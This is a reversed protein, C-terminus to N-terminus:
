EMPAGTYIFYRLSSYDFDRVNPQALIRYIVTPPMFLKTIKYRPIASIVGQPDPKEMLILTGGAALVHYSFGGAAHTIPAAVLMVPNPDPLWIIHSSVSAHYTRHSIMTMKFDGSTGSGTQLWSTAELPIEVDPSAESAEEVWTKVDPINDMPKDICVLIKMKHLKPM